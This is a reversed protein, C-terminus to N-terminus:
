AKIPHQPTLEVSVRNGSVTTGQLFKGWIRNGSVADVCRGVSDVTADGDKTCTGGAEWETIGQPRVSALKGRLLDAATVDFQQVGYGDSGAGTIATVSQEGTGLKCARYKVLASEPTAGKDMLYNGTSPM